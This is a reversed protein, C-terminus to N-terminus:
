YKGSVYGWGEQPRQPPNAKGFGAVRSWLRLGAAGGRQAVGLWSRVLCGDRALGVVVLVM